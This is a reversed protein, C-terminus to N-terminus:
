VLEVALGNEELEAKAEAPLGTDTIIEDIGEIGMIHAFGARGYKSSDALLLSQESQGAAVKVIEAAEVYDATIGKGISFGDAGLFAKQVHFRELGRLADPGLIAEASPRFEGGVVTLRIAPNIRAYPYILTSNTVVHVDRKGLLFKVILPTTTGAVIVLNDGDEVRAAAAKAIRTKEDVMHKQRELIAPHFAPFAGGRTRVILGKTALSKLDSRVTVSSVDLAASIETVPSIGGESLIRLIEKEASSVAASRRSRRRPATRM